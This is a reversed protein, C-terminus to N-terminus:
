FDSADFAYTDLADDLIAETLADDPDTVFHRATPRPNSTQSRRWATSLRAAEASNTTCWAQANLLKATYVCSTPSHGFQGCSPCQSDTRNRAFRDFANTSDGRSSARPTGRRDDQRPGRRDDPRSRPTDRSDRPSGRAFAHLRGTPDNNAARLEIPDLPRLTSPLSRLYLEPPFLHENDCQQLRDRLFRVTAELGPDKIASLYLESQSRPTKRNGQGSDMQFFDMAAAALKYVDPYEVWTPFCPITMSLAPIAHRCLQYLLGYGDATIGFMTIWAFTHTNGGPLVGPSALKFYLDMSHQKREPVALNPPCLDTTNAVICDLPLLPINCSHCLHCLLNYFSRVTEPALDSLLPGDHDRFRKRDQNQSQDNRGRAPPRGPRRPPGDPDAADPDAAETIDDLTRAVRLTLELMTSQLALLQTDFHGHRVCDSMSRQLSAIDLAHGAQVELYTSNTAILVEIEDGLSRLQLHRADMQEVLTQAAASALGFNAMAENSVDTISAIANAQHRTAQEHLLSSKADVAADIRETWTSELELQVTDLHREVLPAFDVNNLHATTLLQLRPMLIEDLREAFLLDLRPGIARALRADSLGEMLRELQDDTTAPAPTPSPPPPPFNPPPTPAAPPTRPATPTRPNGRPPAKRKSPMATPTCFCFHYTRLSIATSLLSFCHFLSFSEVVSFFIQQLTAKALRLLERLLECISNELYWV